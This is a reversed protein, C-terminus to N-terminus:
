LAFTIFSPAVSKKTALAVDFCVILKKDRFVPKQM